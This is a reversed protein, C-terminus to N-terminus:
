ASRQDAAKAAAIALFVPAGASRQTQYAVRGAITMPVYGFTGKSSQDVRTALSNRAPSATAKTM